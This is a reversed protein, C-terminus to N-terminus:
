YLKLTPPGINAGRGHRRHKMRVSISEQHHSVKQESLCFWFSRYGRSAESKLSVSRESSAKTNLDPRVTRQNISETSIAGWSSTPTRVIAYCLAQMDIPRRSFFWHGSIAWVARGLAPPVSEILRQVHRQPLRRRGARRPETRWVVLGRM